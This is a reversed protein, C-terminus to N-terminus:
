REEGFYTPLWLPQDMPHLIHDGVELTLSDRVLRNEPVISLRPDPEDGAGYSIALDATYRLCDWLDLKNKADKDPTDPPSDEKQRAASLQECIRAGTIRVGNEEWTSVLRKHFYIRPANPEGTLPHRHEPDRWALGRLRKITRSVSGGGRPLPTFTLGFDELDVISQSGASGPDAWYEVPEGTVEKKVMDRFADAHRRNPWGVQLHERVVFLNGDADLACLLAGYSKNPDAVLFWRILKGPRKRRIGDTTYTQGPLQDIVYVEHERNPVELDMGALAPVLAGEVFGYEGYLRAAKEAETYEVNREVEEAYVQARPNDKMGMQVVVTAGMTRDEPVDVWCKDKVELAKGQKILPKWWREYSWSMGRLPTYSLVLLGNSTALRMMISTIIAPDPPEEDVFAVHIESVEFTHLKQDHSKGLTQDVLTRDVKGGDMCDEETLGAPRSYFVDDPSEVHKLYRDGLWYRIGMGDAPAVWDQRYKEGTPPIVWVRLPDKDTMPRIEGTWKDTTLFQRNIPSQRSMIGSFIGKAVASKGSRNAGEALIVRVPNPFLNPAELLFRQKYHWPFHAVPDAERRRKVEQRFQAALVDQLHPSLSRVHEADV